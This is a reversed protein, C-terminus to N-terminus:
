QFRAASPIVLGRRDSVFDGGDQKGYPRVALANDEVRVHNSMHQPWQHRALRAAHAPNRASVVFPGSVDWPQQSPNAVIRVIFKNKM